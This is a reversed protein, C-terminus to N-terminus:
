ANITFEIASKPLWFHLSADTDMVHIAKESESTIYWNNENKNFHRALIVRNKRIEHYMKQLKDEFWKETIKFENITKM